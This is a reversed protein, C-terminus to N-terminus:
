HSGLITVTWGAPAACNWQCLGQMKIRIKTGTSNNSDGFTTRLFFLIEETAVLMAQVLEKNVGFAQFMMLIHLVDADDVYLIAALHGGRKLNPM